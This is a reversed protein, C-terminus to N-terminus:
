EPPIVEREITIVSSEAGAEVTVPIEMVVTEIYCLAEEGERCYYLTLDAVLTDEGEVLTIPIRVETEDIIQTAENETIQVAEGDSSYTVASDILDNIKMGEPLTLDLAIQGDGARVTQEPLTLDPDAERNGGVIIVPDVIMLTDPNAFVVTSVKGSDLDIVRIAHNNTDAVYLKGDAYDLGGPEDFQAVDAGGDRFGGNGDLGFITTTETTQPDIQKIKNNYTDAFYLTLGDPTGTVGLPHQLRSDGLEGDVDGFDFLSNFDPGALTRVEDVQFDAVRISSSESDAFYLKGYSYYLGSPQALRSYSLTDNILAEGGDGVEVELKNTDLDLSWIQHTGAMAIYLKNGAGFEVDWPSRLDVALPDPGPGGALSYGTGQKGTGAVTTVTREALDIARIAHNNTDAVYLVEDKLAMGQPKNFTAEDFAGEDYGSYGTGIVDLVEYSELDAIVIRHHNSDAIFLRGGDTDALVKGPFLLPTGPNGAGELSLAIPERNIEGAADYAEVLKGILEDFPAYPIEGADIAILNGRPEIVAFTPWARSGYLSWVEFEDDNIVPHHLDYRQVIQRLNETQGEGVFKASHVGIVILEDPYKAELKMLTPIMHICNICGYTWFDLIVVKGRLDTISLPADVNIWELGSPFEPAAVKGILDDPIGGPETAAETESGASDTERETPLPTDIQAPITGPASCAALVLGFLAAVVIWRHKMIM